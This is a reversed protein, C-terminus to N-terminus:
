GARRLGLRSALAQIAASSPALELARACAEQAEHRDGACFHVTALQLWLQPDVPQAQCAGELALRTHLGDNLALAAAAYALHARAFCPDRRAVEAFLYLSTIQHGAARATQARCFLEDRAITPDAERYVRGEVSHSMEVMPLPVAAASEANFVPTLTVGEPADRPLGWKRRFRDANERCVDALNLDTGRFARGGTHHIFIEHAIVLQYGAALTRLCYDDDEYNGRGYIDDLGGIKEWLSRRLGLCFGVLRTAADYQDRHAETWRHAFRDLQATSVYGANKVEQVGSVCNSRPGVLGVEPSTAFARRFGQLWGPTVVADNNLLIAYRGEALALGVNNGGAFGRNSRNLVVRVHPRHEAWRQLFAATGDTSDNDVVILEYPESSHAEVSELCRRTDALGNYTLVVVSFVPNAPAPRPRAAPAPEAPPPEQPTGGILVPDVGSMAVFDRWAERRQEVPSSGRLVAIVAAAIRYTTSLVRDSARRGKPVVATVEVRPENVTPDWVAKTGVVELGLAELVFTLSQAGWAETIHCAQLRAFGASREDLEASVLGQLWAEVDRVVVRLEGQESLWTVARALLGLGLGLAMRDVLLDLNVGAVVGCPLGVGELAEPARLAESPLEIASSARGAGLNPGTLRVRETGDLRYGQRRLTEILLGSSPNTM